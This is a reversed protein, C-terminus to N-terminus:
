LTRLNTAGGWKVGQLPHNFGDGLRLVELAPPWEVSEIPQDFSSGFTMERLTPPWAALEVQRNFRDGFRLFALQPPWSVGEIHHNFSGGLELSVLLAPLPRDLPHNFAWGFRLARLGEPWVAKSLPLDVYYSLRSIRRHPRIRGVNREFATPPLPPEVATAKNDASGSSRIKSSSRQQEQQRPPLVIHINRDKVVLSYDASNERCADCAALCVLELKAPCVFGSLIVVLLVDM